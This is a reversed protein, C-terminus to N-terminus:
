RSISQSGVGIDMVGYFEVSSGDAPSSTQTTGPSRDTACGAMLLLALISVCLKM